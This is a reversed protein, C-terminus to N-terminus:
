VLLVIAASLFHGVSVSRGNVMLGFTALTSLRDELSFAADYSSIGM